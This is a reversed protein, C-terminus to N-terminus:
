AARTIKRRGFDDLMVVCKFDSGQSGTLSLLVYLIAQKHYWQWLLVEGDYTASMSCIFGDCVRLVYELEYVM